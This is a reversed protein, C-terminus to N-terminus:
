FTYYHGPLTPTYRSRLRDLRDKAPSPFEAQARAVLQALAALTAHARRLPSAQELHFLAEPISEKLM